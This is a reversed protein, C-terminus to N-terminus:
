RGDAVDGGGVSPTGVGKSDPVGSGSVCCDVTPDIVDWCADLYTNAASQIQEATLIATDSGGTVAPTALGVLTDWLCMSVSVDFSDLGSFGAGQLFPIGYNM